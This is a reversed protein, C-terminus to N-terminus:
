RIFTVLAILAAMVLVVAPLFEFLLAILPYSALTTGIFSQSAIAFFADHFVFSLLLEIPITIIEFILFIPSSDLFASLIVSAFCMLLFILVVANAIVNQAQAGKTLAQGCSTCSSIFSNSNLGSFLQNSIYLAAALGIAVAFLAAILYIIDVPM